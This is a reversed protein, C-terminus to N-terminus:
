PPLASVRRQRAAALDLNQKGALDLAAQLTLRTGQEAQEAWAAAASVVLALLILRLARVAMEGTRGAAHKAAFGTMVLMM